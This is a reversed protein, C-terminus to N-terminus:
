NKLISIVMDEIESINCSLLSKKFNIINEFEKNKFNNLRLRDYKEEMKLFIM